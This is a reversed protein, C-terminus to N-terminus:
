RPVAPETGAEARGGFALSERLVHEERQMACQGGESAVRLQGGEQVADRDIARALVEPDLVAAGGGRRVRREEVREDVAGRARLAASGLALRQHAHEVAEALDLRLLADREDQAYDVAQRELLDGL